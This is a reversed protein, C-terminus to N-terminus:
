TEQRVNSRTDMDRDQEKFMPIVSLGERERERVLM